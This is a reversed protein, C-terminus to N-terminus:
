PKVRYFEQATNTRQWSVVGGLTNTLFSTWALLNTSAQIINTRSPLLRVQWRWVATSGEMIPQVFNTVMNSFVSEVGNSSVSSAAFYYNVCEVLGKITVNTVRGVQTSNNLMAANTGFYIRYRDVDPSPSADWTLTIKGKSGDFPAPAAASAFAQPVISLSQASCSGVALLVIVAADALLDFM